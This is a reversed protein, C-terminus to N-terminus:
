SKPVCRDCDQRLPMPNTKNTGIIARVKVEEGEFIISGNVDKMTKVTDALIAELKDVAKPTHLADTHGCPDRYPFRCTSGDDYQGRCRELLKECKLKGSNNHFGQTAQRMVSLLESKCPPLSPPPPGVRMSYGADDAAIYSCSTENRSGEDEMDDEEEKM